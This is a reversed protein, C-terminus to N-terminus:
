REGDHLYATCTSSRPSMCYHYRCHHHRIYCYYIARITNKIQVHEMNWSRTCAVTPLKCCSNMLKQPQYLGEKMQLSQVILLCSHIFALYRNTQLFM